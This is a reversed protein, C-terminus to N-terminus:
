HEMTFQLVAQDNTHTVTSLALCFIEFLTMLMVTIHASLDCPTFYYLVRRNCITKYTFLSFTIQMRSIPFKVIKGVFVWM